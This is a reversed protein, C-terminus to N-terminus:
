DGNYPPRKQPRYGSRLREIAGRMDEKRSQKFEDIRQRRAAAIDPAIEDYHVVGHARMHEKLKTRSGIDSGDIPSRTGDMWADSVFLPTEWTRSQQWDEPVELLSGDPQQVYRRRM